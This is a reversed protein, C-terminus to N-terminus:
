RASHCIVRTVTFLRSDMPARRLVGFTWVFILLSILLYVVAFQFNPEAPVLQGTKGSALTYTWVVIISVLVVRFISQGLDSPSVEYQTQASASVNEVAQRTIAWARTPQSAM